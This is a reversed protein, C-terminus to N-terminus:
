PGRPRISVIPVNRLDDIKIKVTQQQQLDANIIALQYEVKDTNNFGVVRDMKEPVCPDTLDHRALYHQPNFFLRLTKFNSTAITQVFATNAVFLNPYAKPANQTSILRKILSNKFKDFSVEFQSSYNSSPGRASISVVAYIYKSDKKFDDDFFM